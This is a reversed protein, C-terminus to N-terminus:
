RAGGVGVGHVVVDRTMGRAQDAVTGAQLEADAGAAVRQQARQLMVLIEPQVRAAHGIAHHVQHLAAHDVVRV